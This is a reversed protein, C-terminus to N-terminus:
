FGFIGKKNKVEDKVFPRTSGPIKMGNNSRMLARREKHNLAMAAKASIKGAAQFVADRVKKDKDSITEM